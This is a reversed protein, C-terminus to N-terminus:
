APVEERREVTVPEEGPRIPRLNADEIYGTESNVGERDDQWKAFLLTGETKVLWVPSTPCSPHTELSVCRVVRGINEPYPKHVGSGNVIFALEGQKCNM